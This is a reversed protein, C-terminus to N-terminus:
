LGIKKEESEDAVIEYFYHWTTEAEKALGYVVGNCSIQYQSVIRIVGPHDTILRVREGIAFSVTITFKMM